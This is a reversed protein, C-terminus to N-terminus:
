AKSAPKETRPVVTLDEPGAKGVLAKIRDAIKRGPRSVSKLDPYGRKRDPRRRRGSVRIM